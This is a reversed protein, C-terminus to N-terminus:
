SKLLADCDQSIELTQNLPKAFNFINWFDGFFVQISSVGGVGMWVKKPFGMVSM